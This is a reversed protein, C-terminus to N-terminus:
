HGRAVRELLGAEGFAVGAVSHGTDSDTTAPATARRRDVAPNSDDSCPIPEYFRRNTCLVQRAVRALSL